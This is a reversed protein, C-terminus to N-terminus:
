CLLVVYYKDKQSQHVESVSGQHSLLSSDVQWHLLCPISEQILFIGQFNGYVSSGPLFCDM